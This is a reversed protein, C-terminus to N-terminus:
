VRVKVVVKRVHEPAEGTMVSPMHVDQPMFVAFVGAPVTIKGGAAGEYFCIDKGEDYVASEKMAAIDSFLMKEVGSAMYQIDIYKRHAEYSGHDQPKTLYDSVSAYIDSGEIAYKGPKIGAMDTNILFEFAKKMRTNLGYYMYSNGLKDSIM